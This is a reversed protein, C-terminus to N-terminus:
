FKGRALYRFLDGINFAKAGLSKAVQNADNLVQGNPDTKLLVDFPGLNERARRVDDGCLDYEYLLGIRLHKGNEHEVLFLHDSLFRVSNVRTHQVLARHSFYIKPDVTTEPFENDLSRLLVSWQGWAKNHAQCLEIAEGTWKGVKPFNAIVAVSLELYPKVHEATVLKESLIAAKFPSHKERSITIISDAEWVADSVGNAELIIKKIFTDSM